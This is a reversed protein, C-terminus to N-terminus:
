EVNETEVVLSVETIETDREFYDVSDYGRAVSIKNAERIAEDLDIAEVNFADFHGGLVVNWVRM